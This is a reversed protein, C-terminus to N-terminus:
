TDWHLEMLGFGSHRNLFHLMNRFWCIHPILVKSRLLMVIQDWQGPLLAPLRVEQRHWGDAPGRAPRRNRSAPSLRKRSVRAVVDERVGSAARPHHCRGRLRPPHGQYFPCFWRNKSTSVWFSLCFFSFIPVSFLSHPQFGCNNIKFNFYYSSSLPVASMATIIQSWLNISGEEDEM